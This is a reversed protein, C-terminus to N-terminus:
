DQDLTLAVDMRYVVDDHLETSMNTVNDHLETSMNIVDDYLTTSQNVVNDYLTTSQNVVNDYLTTSQNVADSQLTTSIDTIDDYLKTHVHIVDHLRASMDVINDRLTIDHLKTNMHFKLAYDEPLATKANYIVDDTINIKNKFLCIATYYGACDLVSLEQFYQDDNYNLIYYCGEHIVILEYKDGDEQNEDFIYNICSEGVILDYQEDLFDLVDDYTGESLEM